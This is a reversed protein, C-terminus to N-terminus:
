GYKWSAGVFLATVHHRQVSLWVPDHTNLCRFCACHVYWWWRIIDTVLSLTV